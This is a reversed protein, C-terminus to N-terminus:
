KVVKLFSLLNIRIALLTVPSIRKILAVIYNITCIISTGFFQFGKYLSLLAIKRSLHEWPFPSLLVNVAVESHKGYHFTLFSTATKENIKCPIKALEM